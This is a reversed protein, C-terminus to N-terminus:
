NHANKVPVSSNNIDGSGGSVYFYQWDNANVNAMGDWSSAGDDKKM